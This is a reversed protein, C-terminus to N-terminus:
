TGRGCLNLVPTVIIESRPPAELNPAAFSRHSATGNRVVM